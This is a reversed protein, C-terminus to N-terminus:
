YLMKYKSGRRRIKHKTQLSGNRTHAMSESMCIHGAVLFLCSCSGGKDKGKNRTKQHAILIVVVVITFADGLLWPYSHWRQQQQPM